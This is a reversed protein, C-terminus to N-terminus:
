WDFNMALGGSVGAHDIDRAQYSLRLSPYFWSLERLGVDGILRVGFDEPVPQDTVQVTLQVPVVPTPLWHYAAELLTGVGQTFGAGLVLNTGLESGLRLRARAGVGTLFECEAVDSGSCRTQTSDEMTDTTLLGAQPRLMLAVNPRLRLEVESYVYSFTVRKCRYAGAGALDKCRETPDADIVDKPGGVGSLTGFGLRVAYVPTIFRYTFDIEAQYYQDFGKNLGGDFDVYDVHADVHSRGQQVPEETLDDEVVLAQPQDQSGLVPEPPTATPGQVEVYWELRPPRVLEREITARLYADGDRVLELRRFGPEGHPRVYLWARGVEAPQRVLFALPIARGPVAREFAALSLLDGVEHTGRALATALAAIRPNRDDSRASSAKAVAADRAAIQARLSEIENTVLKAYPTKPDDRLLQDWRTIRREPPQGLTDEWAKRALEAHDIAPGADPPAAVVPLAAAGKSAEVQLAWPDVFHKEATLLRVHDGALVRKALEDDAHAVSLHDGSKVVALTGLAFRDRLTTGSRPDRVVVEHLLELESGAGVGDRAGLDIYIDKGDVALVVPEASAVRVSGLTALFVVIALTRM